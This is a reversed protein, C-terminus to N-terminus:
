VHLKRVIKLGKNRQMNEMRCGVQQRTERVEKKGALREIREV